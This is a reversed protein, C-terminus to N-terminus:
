RGEGEGDPAEGSSLAGKVDGADIKQIVAKAADALRRGHPNYAVPELRRRAEKIKGDALYARASNMRLGLDQPALDSAYHLAAIANATPRVGQDLFSKYYELLPEPDETDLQNAAIFIKRAATFLANRQEGAASSARAALARGKYVMAEPNRPDAALARDAAAEAAQYQGADYEAEALTVQVLPDGPHAAAIARVKAALPGATTRNVGRKSEIRLPMVAAAGPSLRAIEAPATVLAHAAVELTTLRKRRLYAETEKELQKLDGFAAVAAERPKVGKGLTTVYRSLQGQRSPEFTLYHALLWGRGYIAERQEQSLKGYDGTILLELPLPNGSFLGWARHVPAAGLVVSGKKDFRATAMFEAFGEVLWEPFVAESHSLMLHHAYEHFLINEAREHEGGATRPVFAISGSARPVYFGGIMGSKDNALRQVAAESNVMFVTLRNGDGIEPDPMDRILRIAKDFKELRDAFARLREPKEDAYIIFHRTKAVHWDARAPAAVLLLSAFLCSLVVRM